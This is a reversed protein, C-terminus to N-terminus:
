AVRDYLDGYDFIRFSDSAQEDWPKDLRPMKTLDQKRPRKDRKLSNPQV